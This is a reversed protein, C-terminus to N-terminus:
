YYEAASPIGKHVLRDMGPGDWHHYAHSDVRRQRCQCHYRDHVRVTRDGNAITELGFSVVIFAQSVKEVRGGFAHAWTRCLAEGGAKTAAYMPQLEWPKRARISSIYVIRSNPQFMRRKVFEEVILVPTTINATTSQTIEEASIEGIVNTGAYGANNVFINVKGDFHQAIADGITQACSVSFADAQIAVIKPVKHDASKYASALEDNFAEIVPISEASSCTGLISCGRASLNVAVARGIGRSAGTVLAFKGALDQPRIHFAPTSSSQDSALPYTAM